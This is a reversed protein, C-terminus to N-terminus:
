KSDCYYSIRNADLVVSVRVDEVTDAGSYKIELNFKRERKRKEQNYISSRIEDM